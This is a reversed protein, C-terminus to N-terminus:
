FCIRNNYKTILEMGNTGTALGNFGTPEIIKRQSVEYDEQDVEISSGLLLCIRIIQGQEM